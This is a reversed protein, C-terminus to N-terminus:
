PPFLDVVIGSAVHFPLCELFVEDMDLIDHLCWLIFVDAESGGFSVEVTM